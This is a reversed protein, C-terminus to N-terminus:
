HGKKKLIQKLVSEIDSLNSDVDTTYCTRLQHGLSLTDAHRDPLVLIVKINDMLDSLSVLELLEQRTAALIIAIFIGNMPQRLQQSFSDITKFFSTSEKSVQNEIINWIKHGTDHIGNEYLAVHM